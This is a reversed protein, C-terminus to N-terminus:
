RKEEEQAEARRREAMLDVALAWRAAQRPETEPYFYHLENDLYLEFEEGCSFALAPLDEVPVTYERAGSCYRFERTDLSCEGTEWRVPGGNRGFIKTRVATHLSLTDLEREEMRRIADYDVVSVDIEQFEESDYPIGRETAILYRFFTLLDHEYESITRASRNKTVRLYTVFRNVAEPM